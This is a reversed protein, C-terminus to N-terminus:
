EHPKAQCFGDTCLLTPDCCDAAVTCANGVESCGGSPTGCVYESSGQEKVCQGNCCDVGTACGEGDGKCPDLAYYANESLQSMDQGRMYFPPNSPDAATPPDNVATVWLQQRNANVLRNGYDRRTIFVLWFYGGARLPAFVPNFSKNDSSATALEKLDGGDPGVLWLKGNATSRSGQTPRGFAIWESGPSFSPYAPRGVGGAMPVITKPNTVTVGDPAVDAVTLDGTSSDFTWGGGTMGCVGAIKAGDPSWAPEGCAASSNGQFANNVLTQGGVADIIRLTKSNSESALLKTGDHNFASFVYNGSPKGPNIDGYAAPNADLNVTYLPGNGENFEAALKKGDRSVTHCGWCGGPTFFEDTQPSDAKIRLIRGNGAGSPLEWYYVSGRLRGQAVHLTRENPEFAVGNQMRSLSMVLPDSQPGTGSNEISTWETEALLHRAPPSTKFYETYEYFKEKFQIRYTDAAGASNNWQVEPALVGLPFVTEAYPYVVKLDDPGGTPTDFANMEEDSLGAPNLAKKIVVQVQASGESQNLKATLSGAGGVKGTPEFIGSPYIEGVDPRDFSWSVMSTVDQGNFTATFGQTVIVDNVVTLTASAPSVTLINAQGGGSGTTNTNTNTTTTAAGGTGTNAGGSGTAGGAGGQGGGAGATGGGGTGGGGTPSGTTKGTSDEGGTGDIRSSDGSSAGCGAAALAAMVLVLSSFNTRHKM